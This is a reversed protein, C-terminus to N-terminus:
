PSSILNCHHHWKHAPSFDGRRAWFSSNFELYLLFSGPLARSENKGLEVWKALKLHEHGMGDEIMLIISRNDNKASTQPTHTQNEILFSSQSPIQSSHTFNREFGFYKVNQLCSCPNKM